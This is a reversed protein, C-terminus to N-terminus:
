SSIESSSQKTHRFFYKIIGLCVIISFIILIVFNSPQYYYGLYAILFYRPFRGIFYALAYYFRNYQSGIALFRIFDIPIPVFASLVLTLFPQINFLREFFSWLRNKKFKKIFNWHSFYTILYYDNLNAFCTGCAGIFAILLPNFFRSVYLIPPITPLPVFTCAFCMYTFFRPLISNRSGFLILHVGWVLVLLLSFYFILRKNSLSLSQNNMPPM